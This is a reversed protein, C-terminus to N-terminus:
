LMPLILMPFPDGVMQWGGGVALLWGGIVLWLGCWWVVVQLGCGASPLLRRVAVLGCGVAM